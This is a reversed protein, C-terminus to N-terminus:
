RFIVKIKSPYSACDAVGCMNVGRRMKFYGRMGFLTGWSNKIFWYDKGSKKDNGYGVVLVAHNVNEQGSKCWTSDYVGDFYFRFDLAVDYAVSVPGSNAVAAQIQLEDKQTINISELVRVAKKSQNNYKCKGGFMGWYPYEDETELDNYQAYQYAQAPLGGKCGHNNFDQACDVLQQESYLLRKKTQITTHAELAGTTSFAWCSGCFGQFKVKSVVGRDKWNFYKPLKEVDSKLFPKSTTTASCKQPASVNRPLLYRTEFEAATMDAFHNLILRYSMNNRNHEHVLKFSTEWVSKRYMEEISDRYEKKYENRWDDFHNGMVEKALVDQGWDVDLTELLWRDGSVGAVVLSLVLLLM